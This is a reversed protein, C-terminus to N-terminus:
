LKVAAVLETTEYKKLLFCYIKQAKETIALKLFSRLMSVVQYPHNSGSHINSIKASKFKATHYLTAMIIYMCM